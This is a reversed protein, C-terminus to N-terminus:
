QAARRRGRPAAGGEELRAIADRVRDLNYRISGGLRAYPILRKTRRDRRLWTLSMGIAAACAREDVAIVAPSSSPPTPHLEPAKM